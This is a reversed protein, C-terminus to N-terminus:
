RILVNSSIGIQCLYMKKRAPNCQKFTQTNERVNSKWTISTPNLCSFINWGYGKRWKGDSNLLFIVQLIQFLSVIGLLYWNYYRVPLSFIDGLLKSSKPSPFGPNPPLGTSPRPGVRMRPIKIQWTSSCKGPRTASIGTSIGLSGKRSSPGISILHGVSPHQIFPHTIKRCEVPTQVLLM